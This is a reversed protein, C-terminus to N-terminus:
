SELGFLRDDIEQALKKLFQLEALENLAKLFQADNDLALAIRAVSELMAIRVSALLTHLQDFCNAEVLAERLEMQTMLFESSLTPKQQAIEPQHLSLLYLGREVDDRLIRYADNVLAARELAMRRERESKDVYRDPHLQAQLLRYRTVLDDTKVAYNEPLEFLKFYNNATQAANM